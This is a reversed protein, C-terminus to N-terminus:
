TRQASNSNLYDQFVQIFKETDKLERVNMRFLNQMPPKLPRVLIRRKWLYGVASELEPPKVMLFHASSPYFPVGSKKLFSELVPKSERMLHHVRSQMIEKKQLVARAAVIAMMNVDFPGKIKHLEAIFSPEALLYGIRLSPLAFAKSFTRM